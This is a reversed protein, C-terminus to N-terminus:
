MDEELLATLAADLDLHRFEHGAPVVEYARYLFARVEASAIEVLATGTPARLEIM